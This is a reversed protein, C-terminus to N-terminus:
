TQTVSWELRKPHININQIESGQHKSGKFQIPLRVQSLFKQM